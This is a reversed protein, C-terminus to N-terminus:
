GIRIWTARAAALVAGTADFIASGAFHKRRESGLSWGAVVLESGIPVPARLEATLQGLVAFTDIAFFGFGSPCDLAAWVIESRVSGSGDVFDAAPTWTTAVADRGEVRGPFLGLGDERGTGCVFCNPAPHNDRWIYNSTAKRAEEISIADIVNLDISSPAVEAVLEEDDHVCVREGCRELTLPTDLSVPRRLTAEAVGPVFAAFRGAVYGGNGATEPYGNFRSDILITETM